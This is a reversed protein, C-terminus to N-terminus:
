RRGRRMRAVFLLLMAVVVGLFVSPEPVVIFRGETSILLQPNIQSTSRTDHPDAVFRLGHIEDDPISEWDSSLSQFHLGRASKDDRTLQMSGITLGERNLWLLVGDSQGKGEANIESRWGAHLPAGDHLLYKGGFDFTQDVAINPLPPLPVDETSWFSFEAGGPPLPVTAGAASETDILPLLLTIAGLLLFIAM